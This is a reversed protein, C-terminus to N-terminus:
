ETVAAYSEDVSHGKMILKIMAEKQYIDVKYKGPSQLSAKYLMDRAEAESVTRRQQKEARQAAGQAEIDFANAIDGSVNDWDYALVAAKDAEWDRAQTYGIGPKGDANVGLCALNPLRLKECILQVVLLRTGINTPIAAEIYPAKAYKQRTREVLKLYQLTINRENEPKALEAKLHELLVAFYLRALAVSIVTINTSPM